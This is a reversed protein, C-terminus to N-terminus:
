TEETVPEDLADSDVTVTFTDPPQPEVDITYEDIYDISDLEEVIEITLEQATQATVLTPDYKEIGRFIANVHQQRINERGSVTGFDGTPDINLDRDTTLELDITM